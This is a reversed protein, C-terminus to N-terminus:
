RTSQLFNHLRRHAGSRQVPNQGKITRAAHLFGQGFPLGQNAPMWAVRARMMEDSRQQHSEPAGAVRDGAQPSRDTKLGLVDLRAKLQGQGQVLQSAQFFGSNGIAANKGPRRRRSVRVAIEAQDFTGHVMHRPRHRQVGVMRRHESIEAREGSRLPQEPASQRETRAIRADM